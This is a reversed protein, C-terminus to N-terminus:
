LGGLDMGTSSLMVVLRGAAALPVGVNFSILIGTKKNLLSLNYNM